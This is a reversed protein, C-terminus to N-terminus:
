SLQGHCHKFRKGSGCPCPENRSVRKAPQLSRESLVLGAAVAPATSGVDCDREVVRNIMSIAAKECASRMTQAHPLSQGVFNMFDTLGANPDSGVVIVGLGSSHAFEFTWFSEGLEALLRWVGFGRSWVQTDHLLVAAQKSLKPLWTEFDHKVAEYTHLGDIHLIDISGDEFDTVAADFTSRLLTAHRYNTEVFRSLKQFVETGDRLGAHEDGLWTDIGVCRTATADRRSAECAALYSAGFDVGLEVFLTPKMLRFLLFLFPIHGLWASQPLCLPLESLASLWETDLSVSRGPQDRGGNSFSPVRQAVGRHMRVVEDASCFQISNWSPARLQSAPLSGRHKAAFRDAYLRWRSDYKGSSSHIILIDWPIVIDFKAMFARYSFDLDYLHFGDFTAEDFRIAECVGRRAAFFVGDVAQARTAPPGYCELTLDSGHRHVICGHIHPQGATIWSPATLHSTGAVGVVDHVSLHHLLRPVFDDSVIEIDDHSFIIVDGSSRAFGRNYGECLSSADSIIILEHRYGSLLMEYHIRIRRSKSEDVSCVIVSISCNNAASGETARDTM